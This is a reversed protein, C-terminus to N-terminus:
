DVAIREMRMHAQMSAETYSRLAAEDAFFEDKGGHFVLRRDMCAVRTAVRELADLDHSSWVITTGLESNLRRMVAHLRERSGADVSSAPEDLILLLPDNVLSKAILARQAEGTSLEGIRRGALDSVAAAGLAADVKEDLTGMRSYERRWEYGSEGALRACAALRRPPLAGMSVIDRVTAPFSREIDLRQPVYGVLPLLARRAEGARGCMSVDGTHPHLGLIARFLTTKGAGNPGVIGLIDGGDVDFSISEIAAQGGYGASVGRASLASVPL